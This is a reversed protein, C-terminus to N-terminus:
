LRARWVLLFATGAAIRVLINLALVADLGNLALYLLELAATALHFAAFGAAILRVAAADTLRSAGLSIMGIGLEAAALFYTLLFDAPAIVIGVTSPIAAPFAALVIAAALTVVGHV